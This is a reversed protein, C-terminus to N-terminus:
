FAFISSFTSPLWAKISNELLTKKNLGWIDSTPSYEMVIVKVILPIGSSELLYEKL